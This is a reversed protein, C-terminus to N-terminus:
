EIGEEVEDEENGSGWIPGSNFRVNSTVSYGNNKAILVTGKEIYENGCNLFDVGMTLNFNKRLTMLLLDETGKVGLRIYFPYNNTIKSLDEDKLANTLSKVAEPHLKIMKILVEAAAYRTESSSNQMMEKLDNVVPEGFHAVLKKTKEDSIIKSIFYEASYNDFYLISNLVVESNSNKWIEFLKELVIRESILNEFDIIQKNLEHNFNRSKSNELGSVFINVIAEKKLKTVSESGIMKNIFTVSLIKDKDNFKDFNGAYYNLINIYTEEILPTNDAYQNEILDIAKFDYSLAIEKAINNSEEISESTNLESVLEETTKPQCSFIVISLSFLFILKFYQFKIKSFIM